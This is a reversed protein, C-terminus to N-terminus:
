SICNTLHRKNLFVDNSDDLIQIELKDKPYNIALIKDILREVVYLENFIPLQITIFPLRELQVTKDTNKLPKNKRYLLLLHLQVM